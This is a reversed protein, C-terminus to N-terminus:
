YGYLGEFFSSVMPTIRRQSFKGHLSGQGNCTSWHLFVSNRLQWSSPLTFNTYKSAVEEWVSCGLFSQVPNILPNKNMALRGTYFFCTEWSDLPPCFKHKMSAVEELGWGSCGLLLQVPNFTKPWTSSHLFCTEWSDLPPYLLIQIEEFCGGRMCLMGSVVTCSQLNKALDVLTFSGLKEVTLLFTFYFRHKKSAVEEWVSCGLFSWVPNFPIQGNCTSWHWFLSNEWCCPCM